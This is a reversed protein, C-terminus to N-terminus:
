LNSPSRQLLSLFLCVPLFIRNGDKRFEDRTLCLYWDIGEIRRFPRRETSRGYRVEIGIRAGDRTRLLADVERGRSDYHFGIFTVPERTYPVELHAVLHNLVMGEVVAAIREEDQVTMTRVDSLTRGQEYSTFSYYVYPDILYVKKEKRPAIEGRSLDFAYLLQFLFSREMIELYSQVTQVGIRGEAGRALRQFSFRSGYSRLVRRILLRLTAESKGMASLDGAVDRIFIESIEDGPGDGQGLRLSLLQNISLPFGGTSLYLDMARHLLVVFPSSSAKEFVEEPGDAELNISASPLVERMKKVATIESHDYGLRDLTPIDQLFDSLVFSRFSLPRLIYENGEAGRGPALEPASRIEAPSSGTLLLSSRELSGSDAYVKVVQMAGKLRSAEDLFVYRPRPVIRLADHLENRGRLRDLSLYVIREPAEGDQILKEIMMKVLTTKGVQRPGLLTVIQGPEMPPLDRAFRAPRAKRLHNDYLSFSPGQSRWPNMQEFESLRM